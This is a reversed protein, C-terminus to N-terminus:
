GKLWGAPVDMAAALREATADTLSRRSKEIDSIHGQATRSATALDVQSLGRYKRIARLRSDGKLIAQSVELPMLGADGQNELEAKRADYVAIDDADEDYEEVRAALADFEKKSLVVMEEGSPSTIIQLTQFSLM